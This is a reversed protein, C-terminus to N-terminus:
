NTAWVDDGGNNAQCTTLVTGVTFPSNDSTNFYKVTMVGNKFTSFGFVTTNQDTCFIGLYNTNCCSM